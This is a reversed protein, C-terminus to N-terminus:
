INDYRVTKVSENCLKNVSTKISDALKNLEANDVNVDVNLQVRRNGEIVEKHIDKAKDMIAKIKPYQIALFNVLTEDDSYKDLGCEHFIAHFIEHRLVKERYDTINSFCDPDDEYGTRIIIEKSYQECLGDAGRSELKPYEKDTCFKINYPTGLIDIHM